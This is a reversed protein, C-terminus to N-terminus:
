SIWIHHVQYQCPYELASWAAGAGAGSGANGVKLEILLLSLHVRLFFTLSSFLLSGDSLTLSTSASSSCLQTEKPGMEERGGERM